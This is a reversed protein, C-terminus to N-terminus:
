SLPLTLSERGEESDTSLWGLQWAPIHVLPVVHSPRGSRPTMGFLFFAGPLWADTGKISLTIAEKQLSARTFPAPVSFVYLNAQYLTGQPTQPVDYQLILNGQRVIQIQIPSSSTAPETLDITTSHAVTTSVAGTPGTAMVMLLREILTDPTGPAVRRVPASSVGESADTSLQVHMDTEAALPVVPGASPEYWVLLHEPEWRDHGHIGVRVSGDGLQAPDLASAGLAHAYLGAQGRGQDTRWAPPAPFITNVVDQGGQNVVLDIASDSGAHVRNRTRM